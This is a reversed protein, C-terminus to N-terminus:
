LVNAFNNGYNKYTGAITLTATVLIFRMMSNVKRRAEQIEPAAASVSTQCRYANMKHENHVLYVPPVRVVSQSSLTFYTLALASNEEGAYRRAYFHATNSSLTAM